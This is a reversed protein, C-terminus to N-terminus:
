IILTFLLVLELSSYNNLRIENRLNAFVNKSLSLYYSFENLLLTIM